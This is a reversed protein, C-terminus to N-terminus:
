RYKKRITQAMPIQPAIYVSENILLCSDEINKLVESSVISNRDWKFRHLPSYIAQMVKEIQNQGKFIMKTYVLPAM